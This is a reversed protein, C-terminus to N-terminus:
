FRVPGSGEAPYAIFMEQELNLPDYYKERLRKELLGYASKKVLVMVCGGMGAGSIQAGAVGKVSLSVDVMKDIEPISCRYAGTQSILIDSFKGSQAKKLLDMIIEDSYSTCFPEPADENKWRVIRDGNHSINMWRGFESIKKRLLLSGCRRSRLCEALGFIFVERVRFRKAAPPLNEIRMKLADPMSACLLEEATIELPLRRLMLFVDKECLATKGYVIDRLYTIGEMLLPFQKKLLEMGIHYCAVRQNFINRAGKTKHAQRQSSCVALAYGEPFPVARIKELPSFGIQTVAGKKSYKIAAHDGSGGRTGVYQEGEGCLEV